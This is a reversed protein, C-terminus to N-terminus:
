KGYVGHMEGSGDHAKEARVDIRDLLQIEEERQPSREAL